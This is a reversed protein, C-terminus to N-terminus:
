TWPRQDNTSLATSAGLEAPPQAQGEEAGVLVPLLSPKKETLLNIKKDSLIRM